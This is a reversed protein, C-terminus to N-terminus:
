RRQRRRGRQVDVELEALEVKLRRHHEVREADLRGDTVAAQVACGPEHEHTCDRFRCSAALAEIEAFAERLGADVEWLGLERMGPTDVVLGGRSAPADETAASAPVRIIQRRTTTHRGKGDRRTEAALAVEEGALRNLLTSKGVGSSGLLALTKGPQLRARVAALGADGAERRLDAAIVEAGGVVERCAALVAEPEPCLDLKTLVFVPVANSEHVLALYRELRRPNFDGVMATVVLVEDVNAAVIQERVELRAKKRSFWNSRPLVSSIVSPRESARTDETRPARGPLVRPHEVLVFDGVVPRLDEGRRAGRLLEPAAESLIDRQGDHVVYQTRRDDIVRAIWPKAAISGAGGPNEAADDPAPPESGAADAVVAIELGDRRWVGVRAETAGWDALAAHM